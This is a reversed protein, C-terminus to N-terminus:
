ACIRHKLRGIFLNRPQYICISIFVILALGGMLVETFRAPIRSKFIVGITCGIIILIANIVTAIM